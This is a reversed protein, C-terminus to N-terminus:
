SVSLHLRNIKFLTAHPRLAPAAIPFGLHRVTLKGRSKKAACEAVFLRHCTQPDAEFCLLCCKERSALEVLESIAADQDALYGLFSTTYQAWDGDSKYADRVSKPCGFAVLHVYEIGRAAAAEKLANKSFGKKRSLPMQRVDVIRQVGAAKLEAFFLELTKGEYGITALEVFPITGTKVFPPV